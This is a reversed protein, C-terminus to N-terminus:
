ITGIGVTSPDGAGRPIIEIGSISCLYVGGGLWDRGQLNISVNTVVFLKNTFSWAKKPDTGTISIVRNFLRAALSPYPFNEWSFTTEASESLWIRQAQEDAHKGLYNEFVVDTGDGSGVENTYGYTAGLTSNYYNDLANTQADSFSTFPQGRVAVRAIRRSNSGLSVKLNGMFNEDIILHYDVSITTRTCYDAVFHFICHHDWWARFIGQQSVTKIISNPTGSLEFTLVDDEPDGSLDFDMAFIKDIPKGNCLVHNKFVEVMARPASLKDLIHAENAPVPKMLDGVKITYQDRYFAFGSFPDVYKGDAIGGQDFGTLSYGMQDYFAQTRQAAAMAAMQDCLDKWRQREEEVPPRHLYALQPLTLEDMFADPTAANIMLIDQDNTGLQSSVGNRKLIIGVLTEADTFYYSNSFDGGYEKLNTGIGRSGTYKSYDFSRGRAEYVYSWGMGQAIASVLRLDGFAADFDNIQFGPSTDSKMFVFAGGGLPTSSIQIMTKTINEYPTVGFVANTGLACSTRHVIQPFFPMKSEKVGAGFVPEGAATVGAM